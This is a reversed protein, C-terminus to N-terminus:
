LSAGRETADGEGVQLTPPPNAGGGRGELPVLHAERVHRWRAQALEGGICKNLYCVIAGAAGEHCSGHRREGRGEEEESGNIM